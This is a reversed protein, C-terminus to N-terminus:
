VFHLLYEAQGSFGKKNFENKQITVGQRLSPELSINILFISKKVDCLHHEIPEGPPQIQFKEPFEFLYVAFM